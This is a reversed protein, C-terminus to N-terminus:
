SLTRRLSRMIGDLSKDHSWRPDIGKAASGHTGDDLGILHAIGNTVIAIGRGRGAIAHGRRSGIPQASLGRWGTHDIGVILGQQHLRCGVEHVIGDHCQGVTHAIGGCEWEKGDSTHVGISGDLLNRHIREVILAIVDQVIEGLFLGFETGDGRLSSTGHALIRPIM